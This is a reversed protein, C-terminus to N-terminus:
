RVDANDQVLDGNLHTTDAYSLLVGKGDPYLEVVSISANFCRSITVGEAARVKRSGILNTVLSGILGGHSVVLIHVPEFDLELGSIDAATNTPEPAQASLLKLKSELESANRQVHRLISENWWKVSRAMFDVIPELNPPPDLRKAISGGQWDGM